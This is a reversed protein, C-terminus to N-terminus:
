SAGFDVVSSVILIETSDFWFSTMTDCGFSVCSGCGGDWFGWSGGVVDGGVGRGGGNRM